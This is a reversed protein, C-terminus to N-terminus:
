DTRQAKCASVEEAREISFQVKVGHQDAYLKVLIEFIDITSPSKM